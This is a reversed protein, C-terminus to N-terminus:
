TVSKDYQGSSKFMRIFFSTGEGEQSTAEIDGNQNQLIAKAMALGIGVSGEVANKGKFFRDWIKLLDDKHIGEGDDSIKVQTFLPNESFEVTIKGGQPTHEMCNKLINVLAECTWQIDCRLTENQNGSVTVTQNRLEIPILLPKIAKAILAHTSITEKKFLVTKSDLKSFKLLSSVLWNLRDLQSHIAGVFMIKQENSTERDKLLDVMVFMSTLPTRLQHSVDAVWDAHYQRDRNSQEAQERLMVTVKYIENKLISLEGEKNDRIDVSYDGCAIKSLYASLNEIRQYRSATFFTVLLMQALTLMVVVAISSPIILLLLLGALAVLLMYLQLQRLEKIRFIKM